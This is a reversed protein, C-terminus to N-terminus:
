KKPTLKKLWSGGGRKLEHNNYKNTIIGIIVFVKKAVFYGITGENLRYHNKNLREYITDIGM